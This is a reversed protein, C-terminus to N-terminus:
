ASISSKDSRVRFGKEPVLAAKTVMSRFMYDSLESIGSILLV